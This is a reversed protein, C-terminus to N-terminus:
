RRSLNLLHTISVSPEGIDVFAVRSPKETDFTNSRYIGYDLAVAAHENMVRLCNLGAIETADLMAQRSKARYWGPVSIVVDNIPIGIAKEAIKKLETLLAAMCRTANFICEENKYRVRYGALNGESEGTFDLAALAYECEKKFADENSPTCGLLQKINRATNRFNSRIQLPPM